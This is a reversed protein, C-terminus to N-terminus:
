NVVEKVAQGGCRSCRRFWSGFGCDACRFGIGARTTGTMSPVFGGAAVLAKGDRDSMDYFGGRARYRRGSPADVELCGPTPAVVRM